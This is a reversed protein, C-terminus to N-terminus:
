GRLMLSGLEELRRCDARGQGQGAARAGPTRWAASAPASWATGAAGDKGGSGGSCARAAQGNGAAASLMHKRNQLEPVTQPQLQSSPQVPCSAARSALRQAHMCQAMASVAEAVRSVPEEAARSATAGACQLAPLERAKGKLVLALGLGVGLVAAAVALPLWGSGESSSAEQKPM